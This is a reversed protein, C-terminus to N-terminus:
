CSTKARMRTRRATPRDCSKTRTALFAGCALPWMSFQHVCYPISGQTDIVAGQPTKDPVSPTPPLASSCADNGIHSWVVVPVAGVTGALRQSGNRHSIKPIASSISSRSAYWIGQHCNQQSTRLPRTRAPTPPPVPSFLQAVGRLLRRVSLEPLHQISWRHPQHARFPARPPRLAPQSFCQCAQDALASPCLTAEM